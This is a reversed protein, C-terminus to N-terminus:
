VGSLEPLSGNSEGVREVSVDMKHAMSVLLNGMPTDSYQLHRGGKLQGGCHGALVLPLDSHLHRQAESICAGYLIMSHELLNGDGDPTNKLRTLFESFLSAFHRDIKAIKAQKEVDDQHHSIAHHADSIGLAPFTRQSVERGLMFSTVRTIDAQFALAQLDYMLRCYEEFTEPAGVPRDPIEFRAEENAAGQIRREVDRISDTYENVRVRDGPGLTRRFRDLEGLVGDLISRNERQIVVREADTAGEGFLREFVYRPNTEMPLPATATRWSITASYICAYGFAGCRGALDGPELSLELSALQTHKGTQAAIMQDLTQGGEVDAGERRKPHVASLWAAPSRPHDGGGDGRADAALNDLGSLVTVYERLPALPALTPSLAFGPGAGAPTWAPMNAGNPFYVFGVRRVPTTVRRAAASLAPVMADLFPLALSAGLGRLVTRRPIARQTIMM